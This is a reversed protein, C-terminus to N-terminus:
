KYVEVDITGKFVLEAPGSMFIDNDVEKIVLEGLPLQLVCNNDIMDEKYLYAFTACAGTGCALTLGAGREFTQMKVTTRDLVQYFNLNTGEPFVHSSEFLRGVRVMETISFSEVETVTHPVGMLMSSAQIVEGDFDFEQHQSDKLTLPISLPDYDPYGMNVEVIFPTLETIHVTMIGALTVVDYQKLYSIGQDYVYKAFCRIGNGCMQARSGDSNYYIMELPDQKVIILGDAGIGTNRNCLKKAMQSHNCTSVDKYDVMVFDNGLGHYKNVNVM